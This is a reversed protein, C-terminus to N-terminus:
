LNCPSYATVVFRENAYQVTCYVSRTTFFSACYHGGLVFYLILRVYGSHLVCNTAQHLHKHGIWIYTCYLLFTSQDNIDYQLRTFDQESIEFVTFHLISYLVATSSLYQVTPM